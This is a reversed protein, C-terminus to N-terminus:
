NSLKLRWLLDCIQDVIELPLDPYIPLTLVRQAADRAVPTGGSNFRGAYCSFDSILPYFYKRAFIRHEALNEHVLDRPVGFSDEFRVPMYSYNHEVGEQPNQLQIGELGKLNETYREAVKKRLAIDQPLRRLNCIGMAACFENMKANGGVYEVDEPGTIGFNKWQDLTKKLEEDAFTLAGGEITNFVKTAHFSFMSVDGHSAVSVGNKKVGFAHAADYIVKLNYRRAIDEIADVQCMNGYVHVPVIACTSSDVLREVSEPDLTYDDQRIDAFVPELGKRVIAHTTSAFSFPTTIVKGRLGLAELSCELASHGNTYLAVNRVGLYERLMMEFTDHKAGMNTLWRNKWIPAIEDIYDELEPMSSRTVHTPNIAEIKQDWQPDKEDLWPTTKTPIVDTM